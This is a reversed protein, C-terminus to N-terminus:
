SWWGPMKTRWRGLPFCLLEGGGGGGSQPASRPLNRRVTSHNLSIKHVGLALCLWILPWCMGPCVRGQNFAWCTCTCCTSFNVGSREGGGTSPSSDGVSGKKKGGGIDPCICWLAFNEKKETKLSCHDENLPFCCREFFLIYEAKQCPAGSEIITWCGPHAHVQKPPPPAPPPSVLATTKKDGPKKKKDGGTELNWPDHRVFLMILAMQQQEGWFLM